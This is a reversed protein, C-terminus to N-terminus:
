WLHDPLPLIGSSCSRCFKCLFMRNSHTIRDIRPTDTAVWLAVHAESRDVADGCECCRDDAGISVLNANYGGGSLGTTDLYVHLDLSGALFARALDEDVRTDSKMRVVVNALLRSYIYFGSIEQEFLKRPRYAWSLRHHASRISCRICAQVSAMEEIMECKGSGEESRELVRCISIFSEGRAMTKDCIFCVYGGDGDGDFDAPIGEFPTAPYAITAGSCRIGVKCARL